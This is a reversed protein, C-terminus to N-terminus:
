SAGWLRHRYESPTCGYRERFRRNFYALNSFGVEMAIALITSEEKSLLQCAHTLRIETLFETFKRGTVRKFTRSFACPSLCAKSAMEGHSLPEAYREMMEACVRAIRSAGRKTGAEFHPRRVTGSSIAHWSEAGLLVTVLDCFIGVRRVGASLRLNRLLKGAELGAPGRLLLGGAAKELLAVLASLDPLSLLPNGAPDSQFHLVEATAGDRFGPSNRFIHPLNSGLLFLDGDCFEGLAEGILFTGSSQEIWTIEFDRHYHFPHRYAPGRIRRASFLSQQPPVLPEIIPKLRKQDRIM